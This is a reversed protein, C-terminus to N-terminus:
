IDTNRHSVDYRIKSTLYVLWCAFPQYAVSSIHPLNTARATLSHNLKVAKSRCVDLDKYNM